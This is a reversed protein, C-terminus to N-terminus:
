ESKEEAPKEEAPAEKKEETKAEEAPKEEAKPAEEAKAEGEVPKEEKKIREIEKLAKADDYIVASVLSQKLGFIPKIQKVIVLEPKAKLEKALEQKVNDNSPTVGEYVIEAKLETRSLLKNQNKEIIKM